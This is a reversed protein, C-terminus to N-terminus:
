NAEVETNPNIIPGSLDITCEDVVIDQNIVVNQPEQYPAVISTTDEYYRDDTCYQTVEDLAASAQTLVTSVLSNVAEHKQITDKTDLILHEVFPTSKFTEIYPTANTLVTAVYPQTAGVANQVYPQATAPLAKLAEQADELTDSVQTSVKSYQAAVCNYVNLPASLLSSHAQALSETGSSHVAKLKNIAEAIVFHLSVIDISFYM